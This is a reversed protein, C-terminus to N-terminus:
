RGRGGGGGHGGGGHGGFSIGGGRGGGGSLGSSSPRSVMKSTFSVNTRRIARNIIAFEFYTEVPNALWQPPAVTISKFKDEWVDTVGLVQAYPLVEYYLQPNEEIMAELKEKETYLIFNRYGVIHNLKDNYAQTRSILTVSLMVVAFGVACCLIKPALEMVSSPLLWAYLGTFVACLAIIGVISLIRTTKKTKLKLYMVSETLGYVIFAPILMVFCLYLFLKPSITAMALIVPTVCMLLAGLVAFIVSVGISKSDYLSRYSSNVSKTVTEATRYFRNELSSVKIADNNGFMNNYMTKQHEPSNDPLNKFIRILGPNQEDELDIKLYGKSAWYFILSTLDENNVKNDILKGMVLPDMGDPPTLNVVPTLKNKSFVLLKLAVLAAILVCGVIVVIYPVFDFHTSLAGDEFYLDFTVGNYPSLHVVTATITNTAQDYTYDTSSVDTDGIYYKTKAADFGDPLKLTVTANWIECDWGYGVPNLYIANKDTPRTIHYEYTLIYTVTKKYKNSTDGIDVTIFDSDEIDVDYDAESGDEDTVRVNRVRDGANVPIDRYFGTSDRGLFHVTITEEVNMTRDSHIDYVVNYQELEFRYDGAAYAQTPRILLALIALLAVIASCLFLCSRRIKKM